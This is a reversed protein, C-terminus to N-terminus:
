RAVTRYASGFRRTIAATTLGSAAAIQRAPIMHEWCREQIQRERFEAEVRVVNVRRLEALLAAQSTTLRM